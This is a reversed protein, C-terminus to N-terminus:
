PEQYASHFRRKESMSRLDSSALLNNDRGAVDKRRRLFRRDVEANHGACNNGLSFFIISLRM